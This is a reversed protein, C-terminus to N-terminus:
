NHLAARCIHQVRGPLIVRRVQCFMRLFMGPEGEVYERCTISTGTEAGHAPTIGTEVMLVRPKHRLIYEAIHAQRELHNVGFVCVKAKTEADEFVLDPVITCDAVASGAASARHGSRSGSKFPKTM